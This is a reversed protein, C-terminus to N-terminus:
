EVCRWRKTGRVWEAFPQKRPNKRGFNYFIWDHIIVKEHCLWARRTGLRADSRVTIESVMIGDRITFGPIKLDLRDKSLRNPKLKFKCHLAEEM